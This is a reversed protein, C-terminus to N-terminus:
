IPKEYTELYHRCNEHSTPFMAIAYNYINDPIHSHFMFFM